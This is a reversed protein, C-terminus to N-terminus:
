VVALCPAFLVCSFETERVRMHVHRIEFFSRITYFKWLLLIIGFSTRRIRILRLPERYIHKRCVRKCVQSVELPVAIGICIKHYPPCTQKPSFFHYWCFFFLSFPSFHRQRSSHAHQSLSRTYINMFTLYFLPIFYCLYFFVFPSRPM